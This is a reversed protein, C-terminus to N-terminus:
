DSYRNLLEEILAEGEQEGQVGTYARFAEVQVDGDQHFDVEWREGPVTILVSVAHPLHHSLTYYINNDSLKQLFTMLNDFVPPKDKM